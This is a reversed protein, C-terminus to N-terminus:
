SKVSWQKHQLYKIKNCALLLGMSPSFCYETNGNSKKANSKLSFDTEAGTGVGEVAASCSM